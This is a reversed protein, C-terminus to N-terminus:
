ERGGRSAEDVPGGVLGVLRPDGDIGARDRVGGAVARDPFSGRQQLPDRDAAGAAALQGDVSPTVSPM